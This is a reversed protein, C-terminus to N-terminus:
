ALLRAGRAVVSASATPPESPLLQALLSQRAYSITFTGLSYRIDGEDVRDDTWVVHVGGQSDVALQPVTCYVENPADSVRAERSFTAGLDTSMSFEIASDASNIREWVVYINTWEDVAVKPALTDSQTTASTVLVNAGFSLGANTSVTSYIDLLGNRADRWVVCLFGDGTASVSPSGQVYTASGTNDVRVSSQFSAGDDESRSMYINSNLDRNDNWVVYFRGVDDVALSPIGVAITSSSGDDVKINTSFVDGRNVSRASYVRPYGGRDDKWVVLVIGRANVAVSPFEQWSLQIGTDDVRVAPSFALSGENARSLYVNVNMGGSRNEQWAVYVAGDPGIAVSPYQQSAGSYMSMNVMSPSSWTVGRDVSKSIYIQGRGDRRDEWVIYVLSGITAIAPNRQTTLAAAGDVKRSAAYGNTPSPATSAAFAKTSTTSVGSADTVTLTVNYNGALSYRHESRIGHTVSTGDGWNWAYDSITGDPDFSATAFVEIAQYLGYLTFSAVPPLYNLTVNQSASGNLGSNDTVTLM